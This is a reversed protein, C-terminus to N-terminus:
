KSQIANLLFKKSLESQENLIGITKEYDFEMSGFEEFEPSLCQKSLSFIDLLSRIRGGRSALSIYVYFPTSLMIGFATGHFSDTIFCSADRIMGVWELPGISDVFVTDESYTRTPPISMTVVMVLGMEKAKKSAYGILPENDVVTYVFMYKSKRKPPIALEKWKTSEILFTPDMVVSVDKEILDEIITKGETERVSLEDYDSLWKKYIKGYNDPLTSIAISSAYSIKKSNKPAFTLFYPENYFGINPNWVQDSGTLYIDYRPPNNYLQDISKYEKSYNIKSNFKNFNYIRESTYTNGQVPKRYRLFIKWKVFSLLRRISSRKELPWKYKDSEIYNPHGARLLDIVECDFSKSDLYSWLAFCQLSAGFNGITGQVTIIGIKKM